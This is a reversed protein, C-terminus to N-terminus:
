LLFFPLFHHFLFFKFEVISVNNKKCSDNHVNIVCTRVAYDALKHGRNKFSERLDGSGLERKNEGNVRKGARNIKGLETFYGLKELVFVYRDEATKAKCCTVEDIGSCGIDINEICCCEKYTKACCEERGCDGDGKDVSPKSFALCSKKCNGHGNACEAAGDAAFDDTGCDAFDTIVCSETVDCDAHYCYNNNDAKEESFVGCFETDSGAECIFNFCFGFGAFLFFEGADSEFFSKFGIVEICDEAYEKEETHAEVCSVLVHGYIHGVESKIRSKYARDETHDEKYVCDGHNGATCYSVPETGSDGHDGKDTCEDCADCDHCEGSRGCAHHIKDADEHTNCVEERLNKGACHYSCCEAGFIGCREGAPDLGHDADACEDAARCKVSNIIHGTRVAACEDYHDGYHDNACDKAEGSNFFYFTPLKICIKPIIRPKAISM